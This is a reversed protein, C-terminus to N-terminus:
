EDDEGREDAAYFIETKPSLENYLTKKFEEPTLNYNM